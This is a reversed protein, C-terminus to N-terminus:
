PSLVPKGFKRYAFDMIRGKIDGIFRVKRIMGTAPPLEKDFWVDIEGQPSGLFEQELHIRVLPDKGKKEADSERRLSAEEEPAVTV